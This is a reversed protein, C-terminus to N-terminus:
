TVPSSEMGAKISLSAACSSAGIIVKIKWGDSSVPITGSSHLFAHITGM